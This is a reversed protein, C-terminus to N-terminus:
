KGGPQVAVIAGAAKALDIVDVASGYEAAADSQFFVVKDSRAALIRTLKARLEDGVTVVAQNLTVVGQSDLALLVSPELTAPAPVNADQKEPVRISVQKVMMPTVVMFIILLVLVVDVLPTVNMSPMINSRRNNKSGSSQVAFAM